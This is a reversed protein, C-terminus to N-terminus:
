SKVPLHNAVKTTSAERSSTKRPNYSCLDGYLNNKDGEHQTLRGGFKMESNKM